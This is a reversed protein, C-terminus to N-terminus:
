TYHEGTLKQSASKLREIAGTDHGEPDGIRKIREQRYAIDSWIATFVTAFEEVTLEYGNITTTM